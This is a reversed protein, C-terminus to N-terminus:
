QPAKGRRDYKGWVLVMMAIAFSCAITFQVLRAFWIGNSSAGAAIASSLIVLASNCSILGIAAAAGGREIRVAFFIGLLFTALTLTLLSPSARLLTYAIVGGFGGLVNGLMMALGHRAGRKHDFNAVLLVTTILVPLADALGFLLYVLMMPLVVLTGAVASRVPSDIAAPATPKPRPAVAPWLAHMAWVVLMAVAMGRALAIPMVQVYAPAALGIVPVSSVCLLLLTAPLVAKGHAMVAFAIFVIVGIVGFMIEPTHGLLTPLLFALLASSGMVAVLAVGAKLPPSVPLNAILVAVLLPALFTPTWGLIECVVLAVTIGTSFRLVSHLRARAIPDSTPANAPRAQDM